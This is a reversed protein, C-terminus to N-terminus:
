PVPAHVSSFGDYDFKLLGETWCRLQGGGLWPTEKLALKGNLIPGIVFPMASFWLWIPCEERM